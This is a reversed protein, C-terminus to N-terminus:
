RDADRRLQALERDLFFSIASRIAVLLFLFVLDMIALSLATHIVDSVIFLELGSLIYAGLQLRAGNMAGQRAAGRGLEAPVIAIVFRVAGVVLLAIACLDIAAAVWELTEVLAPLYAHLVTEEGEQSLLTEVRAEGYRGARSEGNAPAV